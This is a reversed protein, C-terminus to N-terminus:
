DLGELHDEVRDKATEVIMPGAKDWAWKIRPKDYVIHPIVVGTLVTFAIAIFRRVIIAQIM